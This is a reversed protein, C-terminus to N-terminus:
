QGQDQGAPEQEGQNTDEDPIPDSIATVGKVVKDLIEKDEDTGKLCVKGFVALLKDNTYVRSLQRGAWQVIKNNAQKEITLLFKMDDYLCGAYKFSERRHWLHSGYDMGFLVILINKNLKAELISFLEFIEILRETHYNGLAIGVVDRTKKLDITIIHSDFTKECSDKEENTTPDTSTTNPAEAM